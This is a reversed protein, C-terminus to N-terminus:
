RSRLRCSFALRVAPPSSAPPSDVLIAASECKPYGPPVSRRVHRLHRVPWRRSCRALLCTPSVLRMSVGLLAVADAGLAFAIPMGSFMAFLTALGYAIGVGLVTM